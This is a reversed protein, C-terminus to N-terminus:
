AIGPEATDLLALAVDRARTGAAGLVLVRATPQKPTGSATRRTQAPVRGRGATRGGDLVASAGPIQATAVSSTTDAPPVLWLSSTGM